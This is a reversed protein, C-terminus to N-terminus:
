PNVQASVAVMPMFCKDCMPVEGHPIENARVEKTAGCGICRVKVTAMMKALRAHEEKSRIPHMMKM